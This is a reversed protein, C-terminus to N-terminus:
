FVRTETGVVQKPTRSAGALPVGLNLNRFLFYINSLSLTKFLLFHTAAKDSLCVLILHKLELGKETERQYKM